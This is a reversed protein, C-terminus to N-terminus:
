LPPGSALKMQCSHSLTARGDTFHRDEHLRRESTSHHSLFHGGYRIFILWRHFPSLPAGSATGRMVVFEAELVFRAALLYENASFSITVGADEVVRAFPDSVVAAQHDLRVLHLFDASVQVAVDHTTQILLRILSNGDLRSLIEVLLGALVKSVLGSRHDMKLCSRSHHQLGARLKRELDATVENVNTRGTNGNNPGHNHDVAATGGARSAAGARGIGLVRVLCVISALTVFHISGM